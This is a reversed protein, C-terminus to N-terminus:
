ASRSSEEMYNRSRELWQLTQHSNQWSINQFYIDASQHHLDGNISGFKQRFWPQSNTVALAKWDGFNPSCRDATLSWSNANLISMMWWGSNFKLNNQNSLALLTDFWSANWQWTHCAILRIPLSFRMITEFGVSTWWWAGRWKGSCEHTESCEIMILPGWVESRDVRTDFKTAYRILKEM